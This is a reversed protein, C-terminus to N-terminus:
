TQKKLDAIATKIREANPAKPALDLYKQLESAAEANKKQQSYIQGLYLHGLALNEGGKTTVAKKLETEAAAVNKLYFLSIGLNLHAEAMDKKTQLIDNFAAAAVVYEKKEFQAKGYGYKAETYDPKITIAKVFAETAKDPENLKLYAAGKEYYAAAFNPYAAIAEDFHVLAGKADDKSMKEKGKEFKSVADKSVANLLPNSGSLAAKAQDPPRLNFLLQFAEGAAAFREITLQESENQFGEAKVSINYSGKPISGFSFEGESDTTQSISAFGSGNVSVRAGVAPKRDPLFVKGAIIHNGTVGGSTGARNRDGIGQARGENHCAFIALTLALFFLCRRRM